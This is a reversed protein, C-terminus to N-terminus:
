KGGRMKKIENIALELLGIVRNVRDEQDCNLAWSGAAQVMLAFAKIAKLDCKSFYFRCTEEEALFANAFATAEDPRRSHAGVRTSQYPRYIRAMLLYAQRYASWRPDTTANKDLLDDAAAELRDVQTQTAKTMIVRQGV